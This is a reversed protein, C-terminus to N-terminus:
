FIALMSKINSDVFENTLQLNTLTDIKQSICDPKDIGCEKIASQSISNINIDRLYNTLLFYDNGSKGIINLTPALPIGNGDKTLFVKLDQFQEPTPYEIIKNLLKSPIATDTTDSFPIKLDAFDQVKQTNNTTIVKLDNVASMLLNVYQQNDTTTPLNSNLINLEYQPNNSGLPFTYQKTGPLSKIPTTTKEKYDWNEKQKPGLEITKNDKFTVISKPTSSITSISSTQTQNYNNNTKIPNFIFIIIMSVIMIISAVLFNIKNM